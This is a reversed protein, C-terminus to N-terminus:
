SDHKIPVESLGTATLFQCHRRRFLWNGDFNVLDDDYMAPRTERTTSDVFLVQTRATANPGEVSVVSAGTLHLGKPARTFMQGIKERGVLTKGFVLYEADETFLSLCGDIDDSDLTVAYRAILDLIAERDTM